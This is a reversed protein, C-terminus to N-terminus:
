ICKCMGITKTIAVVEIKKNQYLWKEVAKLSTFPKVKRIGGLDGYYILWYEESMVKLEEV